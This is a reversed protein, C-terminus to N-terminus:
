PAEVGGPRRRTSVLPDTDGPVSMAPASMAPATTPPAAVARRYANVARTAAALDSPATYLLRRAEHRLRSLETDEARGIRAAKAEYADLRGRLEARRDLLGTSVHVSAATAALTETALRELAAAAAATADWGAAQRGALLEALRARLRDSGGGDPAPVGPDAITRLVTAYATEAQAEASELVTVIRELEAVRDAFAARAEATRSLDTRLAGIRREVDALAATATPALIDALTAERVRSLAASLATPPGTGADSAAALATVERLATVAADLRDVAERWTTHAAVLVAIVADFETQMRAVLDTLTVSEYVVSVGTLGRREIPVHHADLEVVPGALLDTLEALEAEGPRSRRARVALARDLIERLTTYRGWLTTMTTQTQAWRRRTDGTLVADRLLVHGPHGDMELLADAIRGVDAQLRALSREVDERSFTNSM